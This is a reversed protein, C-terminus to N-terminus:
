PQDKTINKFTVVWLWPNADWSGPGNVSEWLHRFAHTPANHRIHSGEVYFGHVDHLQASHSITHWKGDGRQIGESLADEESIDQLREVRVETVELNIRSAWRPMHISPRKRWGMPTRELDFATKEGWIWVPDNCGSEPHAANATFGSQWFSERVWLRDGPKGYPCKLCMVSYPSPDYERVDKPTFWWEDHDERFFAKDIGKPHGKYQGEKWPQPKVIRRTQTKTGDLIAKVMPGRFLIPREKMTMPIM